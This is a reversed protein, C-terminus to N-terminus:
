WRARSEVRSKTKYAAIMLSVRVEDSPYTQSLPSSWTDQAVLIRCGGLFLLFTNSV